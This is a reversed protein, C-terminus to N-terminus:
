EKQEGKDYNMTMTVDEYNTVFEVAKEANMYVEQNANQFNVLAIKTQTM